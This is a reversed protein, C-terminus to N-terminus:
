TPLIKKVKFNDFAPKQSSDVYGIIGHKVETENFSDTKTLTNAGDIEATIEDEDARVTVYYDTDVSITVGTAEAEVTDSGSERKTIRFKNENPVAGV